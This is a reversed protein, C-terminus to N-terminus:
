LNLEISTRCAGTFATPLPLSLTSPAPPLM